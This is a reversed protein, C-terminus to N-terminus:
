EPHEAIIDPEQLLFMLLFILDIKRGATKVTTHRNVTMM